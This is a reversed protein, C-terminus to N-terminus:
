TAKGRALRGRLARGEDPEALLEYPMAEHVIGLLFGALMLRVAVEPDIGPRSVSEAYLEAVEGHLWSLDLVQDVRVLLHDGSNVASALRVYLTRTSRTGQPRANRQGRVQVGLLLLSDPDASKKLLGRTCQIRM